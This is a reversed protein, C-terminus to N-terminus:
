NDGNYKLSEFCKKRIVMTATRIVYDDLLETLIKGKPLNNRKLIKKKNKRQIQYWINGYVLCVKTNDFLSIQKELKNPLWWDDVDLLAIFDGTAKQIALNRAKYLFKEHSNALYYKFRSDKYKKFIKASQDTSQNDWFIVEWNKYTQLIISELSQNLYKEGNYCNIIISVLPEKLM